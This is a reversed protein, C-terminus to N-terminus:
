NNFDSIKVYKKIEQEYKAMDQEYKLLSQNRGLHWMRRPRLPHIHEFKPLLVRGVKRKKESKVNEEKGNEKKTTQSFISIGDIIVGAKEENKDEDERSRKFSDKNEKRKKTRLIDNLLSEVDVQDVVEDVVEMPVVDQNTKLIDDLLEELSM